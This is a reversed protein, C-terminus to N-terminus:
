SADDDHDIVKPGERLLRAGRELEQALEEDTMKDFENATRVEHSQADRWRDKRRNKLWFIMSTTDPPVHKIVKARIIKGQYQFVEEAEFTYGM